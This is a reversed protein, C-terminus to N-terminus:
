RNIERAIAVNGGGKRISRRDGAGNKSVRGTVRHRDKTEKAAM